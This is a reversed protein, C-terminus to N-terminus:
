KTDLDDQQPRRRHAQQVCRAELDLHECQYIADRGCGAVLWAGSGLQEAKVSSAPCGWDRSAKRQVAAELSQACSALCAM